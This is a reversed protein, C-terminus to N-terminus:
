TQSILFITRTTTTKDENNVFIMIGEEELNTMKIKSVKGDKFLYILTNKDPTVTKDQGDKLTNVEVVTKGITTIKSLYSVASPEQLAPTILIRQASLVSNSNKYGMGVIFDGIAIDTFKVTTTKTGSDKVVVVNDKDTSIQRIEGSTTKVQITSDAIDTVIGLYAKPHNLLEEVKKEVKDRISSGDTSEQPTDGDTTTKKEFSSSYVVLVKEISEQGQPDFATVKIQNVGPTLDVEQEFSGNEKSQIIYDGAEGSVTVWSLAKTVGSVLVADETLVDENEPKNLTIKFESVDGSKPTPSSVVKGDPKLSSNIRVVGFAIVLGFGIGAIIAWIVEKRM